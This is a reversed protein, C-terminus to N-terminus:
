GVTCQMVGGSKEFSEQNYRLHSKTDVPHPSVVCMCVIDANSGTRSNNESVIININPFM